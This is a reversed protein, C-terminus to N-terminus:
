HVLYDFGSPCSPHFLSATTEGANRHDESMDAPDSHSDPIMPRDNAVAKHM